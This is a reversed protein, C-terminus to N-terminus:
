SALGPGRGADGDLRAEQEQGDLWLVARVYIRVADLLADVSVGEDAEHGHGIGDPEAVDCRGPGFGVAGPIWRAHTVGGMEYPALSTGLQDNVIDVLGRVLPTNADILHAPSEEIGEPSLRLGRAHRELDARVSTADARAPYRVNVRIHLRGGELRLVTAVATTPGSADAPRAVGLRTGDWGSFVPALQTLLDVTEPRLAGRVDDDTLRALVLGIANVGKEPFASHAARGRVELERVEGSALRVRARALDPVANHAEGAELLLLAPDDLAATLWGDITGKEGVCAPFPCDSVLSVRAAPIRPVLWQVDQMDREEDSGLYLVTDGTPALGSEALFGLTLLVAAAPGKNDASGRGVLWRGRRRLEYPDGTWGTKNPPVVDLHSFFAVGPRTHDGGTGRLTLSAARYGHNAWALGWRRALPRTADIAAACADGFPHDANPRYPEGVSPVRVLTAITEVLEEEHADLWADLRGALEPSLPGPAAPGRM